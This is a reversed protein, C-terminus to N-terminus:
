AQLQKQVEGNKIEMWFKAVIEFGDCQKIQIKCKSNFHSNRQLHEGKNFNKVTQDANKIQDSHQTTGHGHTWDSSIRATNTNYRHEIVLKSHGHKPPCNIPHTSKSWSAMDTNTPPVIHTQTWHRCHRCHRFSIHTTSMTSEMVSVRVGSAESLLIDFSCSIYLLKYLATAVFPNNTTNTESNSETFWSIHLQSEFRLSRFDKETEQVQVKCWPVMTAGPTHFLGIKLWM